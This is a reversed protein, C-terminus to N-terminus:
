NEKDTNAQEHIASYVKKKLPTGDIPLERYNPLATVADNVQKTLDRRDRIVTINGLFPTSGIDLMQIDTRILFKPYLLRYKETIKDAISYIPDILILNSKSFNPYKVQTTTLIAGIGKGAIYEPTKGYVQSACDAIQKSDSIFTESSPTGKNDGSGRYNFTVITVNELPVIEALFQAADEDTDPYYLLVKSSSNGYQWGNLIIGDELTCSIRQAKGSIASNAEKHTIARPFAIQRETLALYFVMSAYIVALAGVFRLVRLCFSKLSSVM